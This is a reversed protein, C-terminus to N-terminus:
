AVHRADPANMVGMISEPIEINNEECYAQLAPYDAEIKLNLDFQTAIEEILAKLVEAPIDSGTADISIYDASAHLASVLVEQNLGTKAQSAALKTLWSAIDKYEKPINDSVDKLCSFFSTCCNTKQPESDDQQLVRVKYEEDFRMLKILLESDVDKIKNKKKFLRPM